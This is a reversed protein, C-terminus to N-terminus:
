EEQQVEQTQDQYCSHVLQIDSFSYRHNNNLNPQQANSPGQLEISNSDQEESDSNELPVESGLGPYVTTPSFKDRKCKIMAIAAHRFCKNFGIYILPHFCTSSYAMYYAAFVYSDIWPPLKSHANRTRFVDWLKLCQQPTWCIFFVLLVSLLMNLAKRKMDLTPHLFTIPIDSKKRKGMSLVICVCMIWLPIAYGIIFFITTYAKRSDKSPFKAQCLVEHKGLFDLEVLHTYLLWPLAIAAGCVWTLIIVIIQHGQTLWLLSPHESALFRDLITVLLTFIGVSVVFVQSFTNIKCFFSGLIWTSPNFDTVLHLWMCTLPVLIDAVALNLIYYNFKTRLSKTSLIVVILTLNGFFSLFMAVAYAFIKIAKEDDPMEHKKVKGFLDKLSLNGLDFDFTHNGFVFDLPSNLNDM